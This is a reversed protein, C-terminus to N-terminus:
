GHTDLGAQRLAQSCGSDGAALIHALQEEPSHQGAAIEIGVVRERHQRQVVAFLGVLKRVYYRFAETLLARAEACQASLLARREPHDKSLSRVLDAAARVHRREDEDAAGIVHALFPDVPEWFRVEFTSLPSATGKLVLGLLALGEVFSGAEATAHCSDLFRRLPPVVVAAVIEDRRLVDGTGSGTKLIRL